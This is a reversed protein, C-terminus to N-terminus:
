DSVLWSKPDTGPFEELWLSLKKNKTSRTKILEGSEPHKYVRLVPSKRKTKTQEPLVQNAISFFAERDNIMDHDELFKKLNERITVVKTLIQDDKQQIEIEKAQQLIKENQQLKEFAVLLESM